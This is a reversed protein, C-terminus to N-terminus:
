QTLCTQPLPVNERHHPSFLSLYNPSLHRQPAHRLPPPNNSSKSTLSFLPLMHSISSKPHEAKQTNGPGVGDPPGILSILSARRPQAPNELRRGLMLFRFPVPALFSPLPVPVLSIVEGHCPRAPKENQNSGARETGRSWPSGM